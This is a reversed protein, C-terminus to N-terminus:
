FSLYRILHHGLDGFDHHHGDYHYFGKHSKISAAEGPQLTMKEGLCQSTGDEETSSFSGNCLKSSVLLNRLINQVKPLCVQGREVM